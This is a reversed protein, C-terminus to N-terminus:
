AYPVRSQLAYPVWVKNPTALGWKNRLTATINKNNTYQNTPVRNEKRVIRVMCEVVHNMFVKCFSLVGERLVGSSIICSIMREGRSRRPM